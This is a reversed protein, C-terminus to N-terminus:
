EKAARLDSQFSNFTLSYYVLQKWAQILTAGNFGSRARQCADTKGRNGRKFSRPEMSARRPLSGLHARDAAHTEVSSHAHSWQLESHPCRSQSCWDLKWAQILTAGNFGILSRAVAISGSTEVSSHAHSWQLLTRASFPLARLRNGRKFSRPEMSAAYSCRLSGCTAPENGRKFSRPEMSAAFRAESTLRERNNGRKFSRPEM